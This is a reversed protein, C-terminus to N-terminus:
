LTQGPYIFGAVPNTRGFSGPGSEVRVATWDNKASVDVVTMGLSVQNRHWNAHDIRIERDSVVESVVAVHGLPMAGSSRFVMVAGPAPAHGRDYRGAAAKWWTGANGRLAIGSANRAFPVCWVRQGSARLATATQVARTVLERDLGAAPEEDVPKVCATCLPLAAAFSALRLGRGTQHRQM